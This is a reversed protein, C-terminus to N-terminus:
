FLVFEFYPDLKRYGIKFVPYFCQWHLISGKRTEARELTLCDSETPNISRYVGLQLRLAQHEESDSIQLLWGKPATGFSNKVKPAQERTQNIKTKGQEM